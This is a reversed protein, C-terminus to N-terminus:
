SAQLDMSKEYESLHTRLKRRAMFIRTKITGLPANVKEAIEHYKFGANNLEFAIKLDEPLQAIANDLDRKIFLSEGENFTNFQKASDLIYQEDQTDMFTRRKSNRRYDNIFTNRMITMLWSKLNTGEKFKASYMIAKLFTEQVLDNADNIDQTLKLAFNKLLASHSELQAEFPLITTTKNM